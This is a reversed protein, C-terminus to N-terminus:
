YLSLLKTDALETLELRCDRKSVGAVFDSFNDKIQKLINKLETDSWVSIKTQYLNRLNLADRIEILYRKIKKYEM